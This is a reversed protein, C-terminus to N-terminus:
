VFARRIGEELSVKPQYLDRMTLPCGVRTHVGVPGDIPRIEAKYGAAEMCMRALESFTTGTGSCINVPKRYDADIVALCAGIVDDIHIWDRVSSPDGWVEFPDQKQKAREIFKPFPYDLSQDSGYGSFPRVVHVIGGMEAYNRALREGCIKAFGYDADPNLLGCLQETLRFNFAATQYSVPYAASSSFYLIRGPKAREAWRFLTSDLALNYALNEKASNIALRGGVRYACHVVLDIGYDTPMRNLMDCPGHNDAVDLAYVEYGRAILAAVMHRGVFGASGTVLAKV